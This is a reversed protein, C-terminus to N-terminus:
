KKNKVDEIMSEVMEGGMVNDAKGGVMEGGSMEGGGHRPTAPSGM